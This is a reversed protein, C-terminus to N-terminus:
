VHVNAYIDSICGHCPAAAASRWATRCICETTGHNHVIDVMCPGYRYSYSYSDPDLVLVVSVSSLIQGASCNHSFIMILQLARMYICICMYMRSCCPTYVYSHTGTDDIYGADRGRIRIRLKRQSDYTIYCHHRHKSCRHCLYMNTHLHAHAFPWSTRPRFLHM